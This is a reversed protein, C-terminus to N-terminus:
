KGDRTSGKMLESFLNSHQKLIQAHAHIEFEGFLTIRVDPVGLRSTFVIPPPADKHKENATSLMSRSDDGM